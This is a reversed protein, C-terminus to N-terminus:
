LYFIRLSTMALKTIAVPAPLASVDWLFPPSKLLHARRSIQPPNHLRM